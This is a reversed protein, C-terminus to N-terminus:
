YGVAIPLKFLYYNASPLMGCCNAIWLLPSNTFFICSLDYVCMNFSFVVLFFFIDFIQLRMILLVVRCATPFLFSFLFTV